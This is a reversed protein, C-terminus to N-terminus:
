KKVVMGVKILFQRKTIPFSAAAAAIVKDVTYNKTEEPVSRATEARGIILVQDHVSTIKSLAKQFGLSKRLQVSM